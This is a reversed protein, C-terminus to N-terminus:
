TKTLKRKIEKRLLTMKQSIQRRFKRYPNESHNFRRQAKRVEKPSPQTLVILYESINEDAFVVSVHINLWFNKGQPNIFRLTAEWSYGAKLTKWLDDFINLPIDPHILRNLPTGILDSSHYGSFDYFNQNAHSITGKDDARLLSLFADPTPTPELDYLPNEM